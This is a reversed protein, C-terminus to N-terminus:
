LDAVLFLSSWNHEAESIRHGEIEYCDTLCMSWLIRWWSWPLHQYECAGANEQTLQMLFHINERAMHDQVSLHINQVSLVLRRWTSMSWNKWAMKPTWVVRKVLSCAHSTRHRWNGIWGCPGEGPVLNYQMTVCACGLVGWLYRSAQLSCATVM